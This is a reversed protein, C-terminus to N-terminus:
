RHHGGGGGSSHGGGGGSSHGGGGGSSHSSGGGGSSHGGSPPASHSGGSSGGGSYGPHGGGYSPPPRYGGGGYGPAPHYGGGGYGGAGYGGNGYGGSSRPQAVRQHMDLQQRGYAGSNGSSSYNRGNSEHSTPATREWYSGSGSRGTNGGGVSPNGRGIEGGANGGHSPPVFPKWGNRDGGSQPASHTMTSTPPGGRNEAANGTRPDNTRSDGMRGENTRAENTRAETTGASPKGLNGGQPNSGVSHSQEVSNMPARGGAQVPSFHGDQKISQQLSSVQHDFSAPHATPAHGYFNSPGNRVTSPAAARGSASLSAKSPVVPLNGNMMRANSFMERTAPEAKMHGTGFQEGKTTSLARFVHDNNLNRLNSFQTGAHLPPHAGFGNNINTVNRINTINVTNFHNGYRGWWPHFYDCPGIPLWGWGFGFGFGVGFGGGFGWFSVYAPAWIPRYIAPTWVPGPWWVWASDAYMWRGYHYPAWGWPEDAVWTWGYYPEYVWHGARYPVWGAPEQPVWVDGYDPVNKWQGYADLDEAGTYYHNNNTHRWADASQIKRDRDSNWRDWEDGSPADSTKYQADQATGRVTVMEGNHIEVSGQSTSLEAEGNRAIVVTDGNPKVEVRFSGDKHAPHIAVNPTDIEPEVESNAFVTYTALGQGVQIQIRKATLEAVNAQANSGLRLLNAFDLQLEARAGEATSVKDGAVVPQNLAAASWDGSDGRQTSVDGRIFSVRAVGKDTAAPGDQGPAQDPGQEPGQGPGQMQGQDPAQEADPGQEQASSFVASAMVAAMALKLFTKM